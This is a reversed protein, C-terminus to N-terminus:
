NGCIGDEATALEVALHMMAFYKIVLDDIGPQLKIVRDWSWSGPALSRGWPAMHDLVDQEKGTIIGAIGMLTADPQRDPLLEVSNYVADIPSVVSWDQRALQATRQLDIPRRVGSDEKVLFRLAGYRPRVHRTQGCLADAVEVPEAADKLLRALREGHMEELNRIAKFTASVMADDMGFKKFNAEREGAIYRLDLLPDQVVTEHRAQAETPAIGNRGDADKVLELYVLYGNAAALIFVLAIGLLPRFSM